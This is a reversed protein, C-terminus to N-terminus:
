KTWGIGWEEHGIDIGICPGEGDADLLFFPGQDHGLYEGHYYHGNAMVAFFVGLLIAILATLVNDRIRHNKAKSNAKDKKVIPLPQTDATDIDSVDLNNDTDGMKLATYNPDDPIAVILYAAVLMAAIAFLSGVIICIHSVLLTTYLNNM